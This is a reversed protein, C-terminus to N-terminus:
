KTKKSKELSERAGNIFGQKAKLARIRYNVYAKETMENRIGKKESAKSEEYFMEESMAKEYEVKAKNADTYSQTLEPFFALHNKLIYDMSVITTEDSLLDIVSKNLSFSQPNARMQEFINNKTELIHEEAKVLKLRSSKTKNKLEQLRQNYIHSIRGSFLDCIIKKSAAIDPAIMGRKLELKHLEEEIKQSYEEYIRTMEDAQEKSSVKRVFMLKLFDKCVQILNKSNSIENQESLINASKSKINNLIEIKREIDSVETQYEIQKKSKAMFSPKQIYNSVVGTLAMGSVFGLGSLLRSAETAINLSSPGFTLISVVGLCGTYILTRVGNKSFNHKKIAFDTQEKALKEKYKELYFNLSEICNEIFEDLEFDDFKYEVIKKAEQGSRNTKKFYFKYSNDSKKIYDLKFGDIAEM